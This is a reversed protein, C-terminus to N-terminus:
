TGCTPSATPRPSPLSTSPSRSDLATKTINGGGNGGITITNSATFEDGDFEDFKGYLYTFSLAGHGQGVTDAREAFVPGLSEPALGFQGTQPDYQYTFGPTTSTTPVDISRAALHAIAPGILNPVSFGGSGSPRIFQALDNALSAEGASGTVALVGAVVSGLM